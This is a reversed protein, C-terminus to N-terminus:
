PVGLDPDPYCATLWLGYDLYSFRFHSLYVVQSAKELSYHISPIPCLSGLNAVLRPYSPAPAALFRLLCPRLRAQVRGPSIYVVPKFRAQVVSLSGPYPVPHRLLWFVGYTLISQYDSGSGYVHFLNASALM